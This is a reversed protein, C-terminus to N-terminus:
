TIIEAPALAGKSEDLEEIEEEDDSIDHEKSAMGLLFNIRYDFLIKRSLLIFNTIQTAM